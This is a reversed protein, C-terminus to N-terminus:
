AKATSRRTSMQGRLDNSVKGKRSVKITDDDGLALKLGDKVLQNLSIRRVAAANKCRLWFAEDLCINTNILKGVQPTRHVASHCKRCLWVVDFPHAYDHHHGEIRGLKGCASCSQPRVINGKNVAVGLASRALGSVEGNKARIFM